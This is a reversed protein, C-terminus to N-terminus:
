HRKHIKKMIYIFLWCFKCILEIEIKDVDKNRLEEIIKLEEDSKNVDLSYIKALWMKYATDRPNDKDLKQISETLKDSNYQSEQALVDYIKYEDKDVNWAEKLWNLGGQLDGFITVLRWYEALDYASTKDVNYSKILEKAKDVKGNVM